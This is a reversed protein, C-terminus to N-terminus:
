GGNQLDFFQTNAEDTEFYYVGVGVASTPTDEIHDPYITEYASFLDDVATVFEEARDRSIRRVRQRDEVRIRSTWALRQIWGDSEVDNVSVNHNVAHALGFLGRGISAELIQDLDIPAVHRRKVVLSGDANEEVAKVRKLETRMAGPPIDGGYRKVLATFSDDAGDFSLVKPTGNKDLFDPDSHWQHVIETPPIVKSTQIENGGAIKDRIRKVEKRTLGTMVAVRSINTPRGRLGYDNTAVDVFACKSLESFERYGVGAKMLLRALPKLANLLASHVINNSHHQMSAFYLLAMAALDVFNSVQSFHGLHHRSKWM